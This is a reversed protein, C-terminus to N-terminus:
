APPIRSGASEASATTNERPSRVMRIPAPPWCGWGRTTPLARSRAWRTRTLRPGCGRSRTTVPGACERIGGFPTPPPSAAFVTPPLEPPANLFGNQDSLGNAPGYPITIPGGTMQYSFIAKNVGNSDRAIGVLVPTITPAFRLNDLLYHGTENSATSLAITFTLDDYTGSLATVEGATLHFALTQWTALPLGTLEVQGLFQNYIGASPANVYIQATGYWSPNGQQTPLLIDLLLLPGPNPVSALSASVLTQYNQVAVELSSTGQTHNGNLGVVKGTGSFTWQGLSDFALVAAPDATGICTGGHCVDVVTVSNGDNCTTGDAVPPNSNCTGSSANCTATAHCQDPSACSSACCVGSVCFGTTCQSSSSCTLGLSADYLVASSVTSGNVGGALLVANNALLTATQGQIANPLPTAATWTSTGNWLEASNIANSGNSGGAVLVRGNSVITSPLLTASHAQRATTMTGASSWSGQGSAPNFLLTTNLTTSGSKGGTLLVSGNTLPTATHGERSSSLATLSSWTSTGDFLQVNTVSASGSNGGVVLVKNNLTGNSPISLLTASHFKVAQPMNQTTTWSGNGSSPDYVVATNLVTTGNLGGALLVKGNSILTATHGHRATGGLNTAASWTGASVSYLQATNQSTSGNLGGAVLVKGSTASNSGTNLQTASHLTRAGTLSGTAAWTGTTRDYLEASALATSGNSTGGVVLVKGTSLLTATHGQRPITMSGTTTWRPDLIAPYAVQEDPWRVRVTCSEAGPATVSRGWPPAPDTDVECGDVALTADTHAGDAGVIFPPAVRLRPTGADDLLELTGEVLRLGGVSQSLKVDYVIEPIAPRKEFSVFDEVGEGTVRHLFTAGSREAHPYVYYDEASQAVVNSVGRARVDIAIGTTTDELHLPETSRDPM